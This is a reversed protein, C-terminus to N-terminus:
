RNMGRGAENAEVDQAAYRAQAWIFILFNGIGALVHKL